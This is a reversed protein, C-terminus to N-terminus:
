TGACEHLAEGGVTLVPECNRELWRSREGGMGDAGMTEGGTLVFRLKGERVWASLQDVSPVPDRGSFGGVGVVTEDTAVIYPEAAQAGGEVVLTIEAGSSHAKAYDLFERQGAALEGGSGGFLATMADAPGAAPLAAVGTGAVAGAGAGSWVAPALLVAGLGLGLGARPVKRSVLVLIAVLAVVVVAYRLGGHWSTDRSVLVWAWVATVAVGAPLVLWGPGRPERYKRFAWVAGAGVLAGIAPAMVTTYYSHFIGKQFSFVVANVVLWGGWLVWGARDANEAPASRSSRRVGLVAAVTLTILALPLLWSIQGGVVEGFMRGPGSPGGFMSGVAGGPGGGGPTGTVVGGNGTEEDGFVRGLGNYGLVLDLATGDTSGGIYPKRGPWLDVVAVWWLSSAMLVVAAGALDLMKRRWPTTGGALYAAFFAPVVIWAAFMKTLFGCGILFATFLLWKTRTGPELSKMARTFAHAAAVLTLVLLTDTNNTRTTVVTIPTLTFVSAAILAANEGAWMRVTRHLLFIAAVGEVVQPLLVSWHHFGFIWVSVVQPWLALPPKDMTVVGAPDFSGFLFNTFNLSMSRAAATYYTNGWSGTWLVWGYLVSGLALIAILAYRSLSEPSQRAPEIHATQEARGTAATM